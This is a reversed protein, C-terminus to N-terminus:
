PIKKNKLIINEIKFNFLIRGQYVFESYKSNGDFNSDL